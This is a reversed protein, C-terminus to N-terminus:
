AAHARCHRRGLPTRSSYTTRYFREKVQCIEFRKLVRAKYFDVSLLESTQDSIRRQVALQKGMRCKRGIEFVGNKKPGISVTKDVDEAPPERNRDRVSTSWRPHRTATGTCSSNECGFKEARAESAFYNESINAFFGQAEAPCIDRDIRDTVYLGKVAIDKAVNGTVDIEYNGVWRIENVRLVTEIAIAAPLEAESSERRM